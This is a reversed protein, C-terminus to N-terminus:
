RSLEAVLVRVALDIVDEPYEPGLHLMIGSFMSMSFSIGGILRGLVALDVGTELKGEDRLKELRAVFGPMGNRMLATMETGVKRDLIGRTILLRMLKENKRAFELRFQLFRRLEEELTAGPPYPPAAVMHAHFDRLIAFFLGLKNKFYRHILSENVGARRAIQRTTAGDYGDKAFVDIGARLLRRKSDSSDYKRKKGAPSEVPSPARREAPNGRKSM